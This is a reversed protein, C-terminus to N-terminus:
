LKEEVEIAWGRALKYEAFLGNQARKILKGAAVKGHKKFSQNVNQGKLVDSAVNRGSELAQLGVAKAAGKALPMVMRFLGKLINGLGAGRQYPQGKFGVLLGGKQNGYYLGWEKQSLPTYKTYM